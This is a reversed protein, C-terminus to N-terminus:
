GTMLDTQLICVYIHKSPKSGVNHAFVDINDTDSDNTGTVIVRMDGHERKILELKSILESINM